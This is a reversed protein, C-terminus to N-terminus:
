DELPEVQIGSSAIVPTVQGFASDEDLDVTSRYDCSTVNAGRRKLLFSVHGKGCGWDLFSLQSIPKRFYLESFAQVFEVQYLYTNQSAPNVLFRHSIASRAMQALEHDYPLRKAFARRRLTACTNEM